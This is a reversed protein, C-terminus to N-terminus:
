KEVIVYQWGSVNDLNSTDSSSHFYGARVRYHYGLDAGTLTFIGEGKSARNLVACGTASNVRWAGRYYEEVEFAACEGHKNPSVTAIVDLKSKRHYLRYTTGSIRKTGYYGSLSESVAARVYVTRSVTRAAYEADGAFVVSFTTSHAAQYTASVDGRSNVTAKRLLLRSKSGFPQAYIAVTRNRYTAGLHATLHITPEYTRTTAGTTLSLSASVLTVSVSRSSIASAITASGAYTATYTYRGTGPPTDTLSFNGDADTTVDSTKTSTSGALSRTVTIRTGAPPLGVGLTLGGTITIKKGIDSTSPGSLALSAPILTVSVSHSAAASMTTATGAYTATYTYQGTAPPTDGLSFHGVADTTVSFTQVSTSGAVSRTVTVPTGDPPATGGFTLSGALDVGQTVYDTQPGTLTLSSPILTVSVAQSANAPTTTRTGAYSAAYTYQGVAPPSDALTFSGTVSTSATFTQVDASGAETRTITVKTGAPAAASGISLSGALTVNSGIYATSPGSLTLSAPALVPNGFTQLYYEGPGNYEVAFLESEDASWALGRAALLYAPIYTNQPSDANQQYVYLVDGPDNPNSNSGGFAVDGDADIAVAVQSGAAAYSGQQGLAATNYRYLGSPVNCALAVQAGGPVVALDNQGTCNFIPSMAVTATAPDATVDYSAATAPSQGPESAVLVGSNQPDAALEPAAYWGGMAAQAEFAPPDASLNIDGIAAQGVHGNGYSVWLKGSQVVVDQPTNAAGISYSATQQLTSTSIATVANDGSLAAYLTSGDPSLALGMVGDQGPITTVEQGALNTVIIENLSTSGQSIFLYGRAQDAVIQYFGSIPLSVAGSAQASAAQAAAPAALGSGGILLAASM